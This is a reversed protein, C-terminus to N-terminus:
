NTAYFANIKQGLMVIGSVTLVGYVAILFKRADFRDHLQQGVLWGLLMFPTTIALLKLVDPDNFTTGEYLWKGILITNLTSWLLCLNARFQSKDPLARTAYIVVLPGGTGFAGHIIGGGLLAARGLLDKGKTEEKFIPQPMRFFAQWLGRIGVVIMFISIVVALGNEPLVRYIIMGIPLGILAHGLIFLYERYHLHRLNTFVILLALAWALVVLVPIAVTPGVLWTLFPLALVSCGFGTIGELAHTIFVIVGIILLKVSIDM